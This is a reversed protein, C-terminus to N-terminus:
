INGKELKMLIETVVVMFIGGKESNTKLETKTM